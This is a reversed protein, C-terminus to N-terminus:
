GPAVADPRELRRDPRCAERLVWWGLPVILGTEEAVAIFSTPPVLGREPHRWRVLAEFGVMRGSELAVIPQYHMVFDENEVARRLDTELKLLAVASQHMDRDFVEYRARGAAKARYMAIDADRLIEEPRVSGATSLAIGISASTFVEHEAIRFPRVLLDQLRRAVQTAAAASEVDELLLVFEDGGLRAVTDGPAPEGASPRRAGAAARRRRRARPQRQDDQLPRPRSVPRRLLDRRRPPQAGAVGGPSRPLPHPQAVRHPQRAHRRPPAAGGRRPAGAGLAGARHRLPHGPHPAPRGGRAQASLGPRRCRRRLPRDGRGPPQHPGPDAGAARGPPRGRLQRPRLLRAPQLRAAGRRVRARAAPVRGPRLLQLLDLGESLTTVWTVEFPVGRSECLMAKMLDAEARSDEVLLVRLAKRGDREERTSPANARVARPGPRASQRPLVVSFTSGKGPRSDVRLSGGHHEAIRQCLALGIGRGAYSSEPHVRQFMRFIREHDKPDIGIGNDQVSVIWRGEEERASVHVRPPEEGHFKLANGILNQFLQVMQARGAVVRPLPGHTVEAGASDITEHLSEVAEDVVEGLEVAAFPHDPSSLRSVELLSDLMAQMREASSILHELYGRDEEELRGAMREGIRRAYRVVHQLPEQLDHSVAHTFLDTDAAPRDPLRRPGATPPSEGADATVPGSRAPRDLVESVVEPLRLFGGSTKPVFGAVGLRLARSTLEPDTEATWLVVPREPHLRRVVELLALGDSWALRHEAVVAEFGGRALAEAFAAASAAEVVEVGPLHARLLSAALARDDARDDVLLVRRPRADKPTPMPTEECMM